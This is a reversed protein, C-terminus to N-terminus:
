IDKSRNFESDATLLSSYNHGSNSYEFPSSGKVTVKLSHQEVLQAILVENLPTLGM